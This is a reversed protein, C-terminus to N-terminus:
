QPAKTTTRNRLHNIMNLTKVSLGTYRFIYHEAIENTIHKNNRLKTLHDKSEDSSGM